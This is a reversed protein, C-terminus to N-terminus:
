PPSPAGTMATSTAPDQLVSPYPLLQPLLPHRPCARHPDLLCRHASRVSFFFPSFPLSTPLRHSKFASLAHAALSFSPTLETDHPAPSPASPPRPKAVHALMVRVQCSQAAGVATPPARRM